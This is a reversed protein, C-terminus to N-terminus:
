NTYNSKFKTNLNNIYHKLIFFVIFSSAFKLAFCIRMYKLGMHM